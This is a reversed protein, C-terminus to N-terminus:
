FVKLLQFFHNKVSGDVANFLLCLAPMDFM